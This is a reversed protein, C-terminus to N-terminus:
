KKINILDKDIKWYFSVSYYLYLRPLKSLIIHLTILRYRAKKRAREGKRVREHGLEALCISAKAIMIVEYSICTSPM